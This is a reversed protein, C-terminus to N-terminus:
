KTKDNACLYDPIRPHIGGHKKSVIQKSIEIVEERM